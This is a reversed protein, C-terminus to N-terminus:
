SRPTRTYVSHVSASACLIVRRVRLDSGGDGVCVVGLHRHGGDPGINNTRVTKDSSFVTTSWQENPKMKAITMEPRFWNKKKRKGETDMPPTLREDNLDSIDSIARVWVRVRVRLEDGLQEDEGDAAHPRAEHRVHGDEAHGEVRAVERDLLM